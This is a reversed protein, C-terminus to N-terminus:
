GRLDDVVHGCMAHLRQEHLGRAGVAVCGATEDITREDGLEEHTRVPVAHPDDPPVKRCEGVDVRSRARDVDTACNSTSPWRKSPSATSM